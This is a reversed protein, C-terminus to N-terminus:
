ELSQKLFYKWGEQDRHIEELTMGQEKVQFVFDKETGHRELHGFCEYVLARVEEIFGEPLPIFREEEQAIKRLLIFRCRDDVNFEKKLDAKGVLDYKRLLEDFSESFDRSRPEEGGRPEEKSESSLLFCFLTIVGLVVAVSVLSLVGLVTTGVALSSENM